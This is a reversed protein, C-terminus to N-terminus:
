HVLITPLTAASSARLAMALSSEHQRTDYRVMEPVCQPNQAVSMNRDVTKRQLHGIVLLANSLLNLVGIVEPKTSSVPTSIPHLLFFRRPCGRAKDVLIFPQQKALLENAAWRAM